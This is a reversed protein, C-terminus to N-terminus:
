KAILKSCTSVIQEVSMALLRRQLARSIGSYAQLVIQASCVDIVVGDIRSSAKDNMIEQLYELKLHPLNDTQRTRHADTEQNFYVTRFTQVSVGRETLGGSHGIRRPHLSFISM